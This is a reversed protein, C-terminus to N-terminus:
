LRTLLFLRSVYPFSVEAAPDLGAQRLIAETRRRLVAQQVPALGAIYSTSLVREIVGARPMRHSHDQAIEREFRFRPDILIWRWRGSQHRPADGAYGEIMQSLAAVWPVRTDRMNWILALTGGPRLLRVIEAVSAPDDFWHFAQACVVLDACGAALGTDDARRDIVEVGPTGALRASMEAVPEVAILRVAPALHPRLLRTFKGTGAGLEVCCRAATLPLAAIVAEPYGPRGAEYAGAATSYNRAIANLPM